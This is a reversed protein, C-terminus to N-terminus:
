FDGTVTGNPQIFSAMMTHMTGGSGTTSGTGSGSGGKPHKHHRRGGNIAELHEEPMATLLEIGFPKVTKKTERM